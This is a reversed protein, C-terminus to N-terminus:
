RSGSTDWPGPRRPWRMPRAAAMQGTRTDDIQLDAWNVVYVKREAPYGYVALDESLESEVTIAVPQGDIELTIVECPVM